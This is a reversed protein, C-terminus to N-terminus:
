RPPTASGSARRQRTAGPIRPTRTAPLFEMYDAIEAASEGGPVRPAARLPLLRKEAGSDPAGARAAPAGTRAPPARRPRLPGARGGGRRAARRPRLRAGGAGTRWSRRRGRMTGLVYALTRRRYRRERVLLMAAYAASNTLIRRRMRRLDEDSEPYPHRVVAGPVYAISHGDRIQQFFAWHEEGQIGAGKGMEEDFEWGADFLRRSFVMNAGMGIGGFNAIEFWDPHDPGVAFPEGGLDLGGTDAFDAAGRHRAGAPPDARRSRLRGTRWRM